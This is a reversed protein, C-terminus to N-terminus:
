FDTPSKSSMNNFNTAFIHSFRLASTSIFGLGQAEEEDETEIADDEGTYDPDDDSDNAFPDDADTESDELSALLEEDTLPKKQSTSYKVRKSPGPEGEMINRFNIYYLIYEYVRRIGMLAEPAPLM